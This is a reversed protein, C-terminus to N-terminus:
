RIPHPPTRVVFSRVVREGCARIKIRISLTTYRWTLPLQEYYAAQAWPGPVVRYQTEPDSYVLKGDKYAETSVYVLRPQGFVRLRAQAGAENHANVHASGHTVALCAGSAPAAFVLLTLAAATIIKIM